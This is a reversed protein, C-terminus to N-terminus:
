IQIILSTLPDGKIHHKIERLFMFSQECYLLLLTM